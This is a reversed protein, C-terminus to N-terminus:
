LGAVDDAKMRIEFDVGAFEVGHTGQKGCEDLLRLLFFVAEPIVEGEIPVSDKAALGVDTGLADGLVEIIDARQEVFHELVGIEHAQFDM